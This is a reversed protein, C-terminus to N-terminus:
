AVRGEDCEHFNGSDVGNIVEDWGMLGANACENRDFMEGCTGETLGNAGMGLDRLDVAALDSESDLRPISFLQDTFARM